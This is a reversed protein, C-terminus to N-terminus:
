LLIQTVNMPQTEALWKLAEGFWGKEYGPYTIVM